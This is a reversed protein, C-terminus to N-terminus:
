ASAAKLVRSAPNPDVLSCAEQFRPGPKIKWTGFPRTLDGQVLTLVERVVLEKWQQQTINATELRAGTPVSGALLSMRGTSTLCLKFLSQQKPTLKLPKNAVRVAKKATWVKQDTQSLRRIDEPLAEFTAQSLEGKDKILIEQGNVVRYTAGDLKWQVLGSEEDMVLSRVHVKFFQTKSLAVRAEAEFPCLAELAERRLKQQASKASDLKQQALKVQEQATM